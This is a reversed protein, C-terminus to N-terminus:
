PILAETDPPLVILAHRDRRETSEGGFTHPSSTDSAFPKPIAVVRRYEGPPIPKKEGGVSPTPVGEQKFLKKVITITAYLLPWISTEM